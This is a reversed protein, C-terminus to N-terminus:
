TLGRIHGRVTVVNNVPLSAKWSDCLGWAILPAYRNKTSPVWVCPTARVDDLTVVIADLMDIGAQLEFDLEKASARKTLSTTGFADTSNRSYDIGGISIGYQADGLVEFTGVALIGCQTSGDIQGKITVEMEGVPYLPLDLLVMERRYRFPAVTWLYWDTIPTADLPVLRDYVVTGGPADRMVVRVSHARLQLLAIASVPGPQIRVVIDSGSVTSSQVVSDFMAWRNTPGVDVWYDPNDAPIHGINGDQLSQYVRHAAAVHRRAKEAYTIGAEWAPTTDEAVTTALLMSETIALPRVCYMSM